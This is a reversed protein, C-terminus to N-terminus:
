QHEDVDDGSRQQDQAQRLEWARRRLRDAWEEPTEPSPVLMDLLATIRDNGNAEHLTLVEDILPLAASHASAMLQEVADGAVDERGPPQM